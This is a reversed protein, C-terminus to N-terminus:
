GLRQPWATGLSQPIAYLHERLSLILRLRLAPRFETVDEKSIEECRLDCALPTWSQPQKAFIRTLTLEIAMGQAAAFNAAQM